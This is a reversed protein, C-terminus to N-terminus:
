DKEPRHSTEWLSFISLPLLRKSVEETLALEGIRLTGAFNSTMEELLNGLSISSLDTSYMNLIVFLPNDSLVQRCLVLLENLSEEVKWVQGQPGRGFSPPDM